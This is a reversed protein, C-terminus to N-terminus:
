FFLSAFPRLAFGIVARPANLVMALGRSSRGVQKAASLSYGLMARSGPDIYFNPVLLALRRLSSQPVSPWQQMAEWAVLFVLMEALLLAVRPWHGSRQLQSLLATAPALLPATRRAAVLLTVVAKPPAARRLTPVLDELLSWLRGLRQALARVRRVRGPPSPAALRQLEEDFWAVINRYAETCQPAHVMVIGKSETCFPAHVVALGRLKSALAQGALLLFRVLDEGFMALTLCYMETCVLGLGHLSLVLGRGALPGAVACHAPYRGWVCLRGSGVLLAMVAYLSAVGVCAAKAIRSAKALAPLAVQLSRGDEGYEARLVPPLAEALYMAALAAFTPLHLLEWCSCRDDPASGNTAFLAVASYVNMVPLATLTLAIATAAVQLPTLKILAIACALGVSAVVVLLDSFRFQLIWWITTALQGLLLTALWLCLLVASFHPWRRMRMALTPSPLEWEELAVMSTSAPGSWPTQASPASKMPPQTQDDSGEARAEATVRRM